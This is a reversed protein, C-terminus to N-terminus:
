SIFALVGLVLNNYMDRSDPLVLMKTISFELAGLNLRLTLYLKKPCRVHYAPPLCLLFHESCSDLCRTILILSQIQSCSALLTLSISSSHKQLPFMPPPAPPAPPPPPSYGGLKQWSKAFDGKKTEFKPM